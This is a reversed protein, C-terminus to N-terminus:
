DSEKHFYLDSGSGYTGSEVGISLNKLLKFKLRITNTTEILDKAYQLYFRKSIKKGIVFQKNEAISDDTNDNQLNDALGFEELGLTDQLKGTLISSSSNLLQSTASSGTLLGNNVLIPAHLTGQVYLFQEKSLNFDDANEQKNSLKIDLSPNSLLTGPSYIFRGRKINLTKGPLKYSGNKITIRGDAFYNHHKKSIELNGTLEAEIGLGSFHINDRMRIQLTPVIDYPPSKFLKLEKSIEPHKEIFIVDQSIVPTNENKETFIIKARNIFVNGTLLIKKKQNINLSIEPSVSISYEDNNIIQLDKSHVRLKLSSLNTYNLSGNITFDDMSASTKGTAVLSLQQAHTNFINLNFPKLEIGLNFLNMQFNNLTTKTTLILSNAQDLSAILDIESNFAGSVNSLEDPFINELISLNTFISTIKAHLKKKALEINALISNGTSININLTSSLLNQELHLLIESPDLTIINHGATSKLNLETHHINIKGSVPRPINPYKLWLKNNFKTQINTTIAFDPTNFYIKSTNALADGTSKLTLQKFQQEQYLLNNLDITLDYAHNAFLNTNLALQMQKLRFTNGFIDHLIAHLELKPLSAYDIVRGKLTLSGYKEPIIQELNTVNIFFNLNKNNAETVNIQNNGLIIRANTISYLNNQYKINCHGSLKSHNIQGSIANINFQYNNKSLQSNSDISVSINYNNSTLDKIIIHPLHLTFQDKYSYSWNVFISHIKISRQKFTYEINSLTLNKELISGSITKISLEGPIFNKGLNILLNTGAHSALMIFLISASFLLPIILRTILKIM